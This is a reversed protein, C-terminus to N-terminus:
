DLKLPVWEDGSQEVFLVPRGGRRAPRMKESQVLGETIQQGDVTQVAAVGTALVVSIPQSGTLERSNGIMVYRGDEGGAALGVAALAGIVGGEDGGVGLLLMGHAAALERAEAQTLVERKARQGFEIVTDPVVRAVCLGPDSGPQYDALMILRVREALAALDVDGDADLVVSKSSNHSTYRINPDVLLQHRLVGAVSFDSALSTAIQRALNGTGRSELNDTDDLGIFIM